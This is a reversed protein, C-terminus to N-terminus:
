KTTKRRRAPVYDREEVLQGKSICDEIWKETVVHFKKTRARNEKDYEALRDLCESYLLVHTVMPTLSDMQSGGYFRYDLVPLDLPGGSKGLRALSPHTYSDVYLRCHRFLSYPSVPDFYKEEASAIDADSMDKSGGTSQVVDFTKMLEEVDVESFYADGYEDFLEDLEVKTKPTMSLMDRPSWSLLQKQEICRLLWEAKVVDYKGSSVYNNVKLNLHDAVVCYTSKGANQVLTGGLAAIAKELAEKTQKEPGNVVCFEHGAFSEAEKKVLSVDAGRFAAALTVGKTAAAARSAAAARKKKPSPGEAAEDTMYRGTLKGDCKQRLEEFATLTLCDSWSKDERIREVRPFRLTYGTKFKDSALVETAKVELVISKSPEIWVDPKEKTVFVSAPQSTQWRDRLKQNVDLLDGHSYGSGVRCMSYFKSMGDGDQGSVAVGCLFTSIMSSRHGKGFCGGLVIVDLQDMLGDVYEPKIKFWGGSRVSPQYVSDPDKAMIGEERREIADNLADVCETTTSILAQSSLLLQGDKPEFVSSLHQLRKCLPKNTLVEDNLLLIDFAIFCPQFGQIVTSKVDFSRGKSVLVNLETDYGCMEGDIICNDVGPKFCGHIHPTLNGVFPSSGYTSAYDHGNRSFYKYEDRKKHLQMREGDYKTEVYFPKSGLSTQIETPVAQKGLMPKMPAFLRVEIEYLRKNPDRLLRCLEELNTNVNFQAPADLHVCSLVADQGMGLKMEKLLIRIFWKNEVSTMHRILFELNRKVADKDGVTNGAAIEDLKSVVDSVSLEVKTGCRDKLVFYASEAFDGLGRNKTHGGRKPKKFEMLASAAESGKGLGLVEVYMRGLTYEKIGYSVKELHPLMCRLMPYFTDDPDTPDQLTSRWGDVFDKLLQRKDAHGGRASVRELLQCLQVFPVKRASKAM